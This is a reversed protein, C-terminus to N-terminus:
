LVNTPTKYCIIKSYSYIIAHRLKFKLSETTTYDSVPINNFFTLYYYKKKSNRLKYSKNSINNLM